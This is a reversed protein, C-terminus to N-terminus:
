KSEEGNQAKDQSCTSAESTADMFGRIERYIRQNLSKRPSRNKPAPGLYDRVVAEVDMGFQQLKSLATDHDYDTQRTVMECLSETPNTNDTM